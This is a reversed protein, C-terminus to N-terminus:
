DDLPIEYQSESFNYEEDSIKEFSRTTIEGELNAFSEFLKKGALWVTNLDNGEREFRWLVEGKPFFGYYMDDPLSQLFSIEVEKRNGTVRALYRSMTFWGDGVIQAYYENGDRYITITYEIGYFLEHCNQPYTECYYYKGIWNDLNKEHKEHFWFVAFLM